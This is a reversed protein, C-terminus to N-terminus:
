EKKSPEITSTLTILEFQTIPDMAKETEKEKEKDQDNYKKKKTKIENHSIRNRNIYLLYRDEKFSFSTYWYAYNKKQYIEKSKM